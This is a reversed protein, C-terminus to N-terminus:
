GKTKINSLMEDIAETNQKLTQWEETKLSIGKKGPKQDDGSGFYERIDILPMGKFVRVTARRNRGLDIYQEGAENTKVEGNDADAEKEKKLKKSLKAKESKATSKKSKKVVEGGSADQVANESAEGEEDSQARRKPM